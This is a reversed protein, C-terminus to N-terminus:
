ANLLLCHAPDLRIEVREGPATQVDPDIRALLREGNVRIDAEYAEGIFTMSEITGEIVNFGPGVEFRTVRIFEPRICLTAEAGEPLDRAECHITGLGCRALTYGHEQNRIIAPSQNIRGVLCAVDRQRTEFYLRQPTDAELVRGNQLAAITHSLILADAANRTAYLITIGLAKLSQCLQTRTEMRWGADPAGLPEDLLIAHPEAVLARALAVRQQQSDPLRTVSQREIGRLQVFELAQAVKERIRGRRMGRVHLPYAVNEFVSLHPWLAPPQLVMGLGRKETPVAIRRESSWVVDDGIRIEGADPTELGAICRLLTTKGCGGPGLLTFIEHAPITLDVRDLAAIARDESRYTKCLGEVRIEM